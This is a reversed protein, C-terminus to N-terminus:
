QEATKEAPAPAPAPAPTSPAAAAPAPAPTGGAPRLSEVLATLSKFQELVPAVAAAAADRARQEVAATASAGTEDTLSKFQDATLEGAMIKATVVQRVQDDAADEACWGKTALYARLAKTLKM